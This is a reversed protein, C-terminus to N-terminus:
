RPGSPTGGTVRLLGFVDNGTSFNSLGQNVRIQIYVDVIEDFKFYGGLRVLM